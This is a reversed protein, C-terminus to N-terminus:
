KRCGPHLIGLDTGPRIAPLRDYFATGPCGTLDGDRHGAVRPLMVHAGPRFPTYFADAPDVVVMVRGLAPVGHLALKWALLHELATIAAQPPVVSTFTGLVAVGTSEENYAGAQAGVVPEDIGGARAEWIRGFADIVFNYGIDFFNRVFKHYDFIALLM